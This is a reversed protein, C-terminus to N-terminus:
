ISEIFEKMTNKYCIITNCGIKIPAGISIHIACYEGRRFYSSSVCHQLLSMAMVDANHGWTM